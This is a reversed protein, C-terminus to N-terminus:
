HLRKPPHAAIWNRATHAAEMGTRAAAAGNCGPLVGDGAAGSENLTHRGGRLRQDRELPIGAGAPGHAAPRTGSAKIRRYAATQTRRRIRQAFVQTGATTERSPRTM